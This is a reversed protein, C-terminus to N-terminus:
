RDSPYTGYEGLASHDAANGTPDLSSVGGSAAGGRGRDRGTVAYTNSTATSREAAGNNACGAVIETLISVAIACVALVGTSRSKM